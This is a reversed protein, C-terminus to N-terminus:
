SIVLLSTGPILNRNTSTSQVFIDYDPHSAPAVKVSYDPLGLLTRADKGRYVSHTRREYLAVEKQPQVEEKKMLQYFAEGLRYPRKLKREVFTSIQDKDEVKLLRFQGPGLKALNHVAKTTLNSVDPAFLNKYGRIGSARGKMYTDTTKRVVEGVEEVGHASTDWIKVNGAPFGFRKAEAMGVADPVFTAITWHDPLSGLRKALDSGKAISANEAGDTLVYLLFGHEGYKEPTEELDKIVQLTADVLATMGYLNEYPVKPLRLVDKDYVLCQFQLRGAFSFISVRTEQDLEESRKALHRIQADVVEIVKSTLHNMSGSADLLFAIHNIYNAVPVLKKAM